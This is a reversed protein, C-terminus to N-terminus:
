IEGEVFDEEAIENADSMELSVEPQPPETNAIIYEATGSITKLNFVEKLPLKVSLKRKVKSVLMVALLSHGGLSFFDDHVGITNADIQLIGAWIAVLIEELENRPAVYLQGSALSINMRELSQRDVKGNALLPIEELSVFTVPVMYDPLTQLLHTKLEDNTPTQEVDDRTYFAILQKNVMGDANEQSQAVVVSFRIATHENLASEIEATEIRFGRIKVQTDMRGLYEINGNDLWRALDGTKYMRSGPIFPNAVFKAQTMEPRNLYGRAVGDGAIHLEGPVGVPTPHNHQDLIYVQTNHLPQGLVISTVNDTNEATLPESAIKSITTETPGYNNFVQCNPNLGNVLDVTPKTLAEGAFILVKQVQIIKTDSVKFMDFHSPTIKMCDVPHKDLYDLLETPNNVYDNGLLTLTKSFLLPVYLSINGLDSSFSSVAAFRDCRNLGMREVVSYCYDVVMRHEIMVGKPQGTTGSTYIVYALNNSQVQQNLTRKQANVEELLQNPLSGKEDLVIVQTGPQVVAEIKDKFQAQTVIISAQSDKAIYSLRDEPYEPDLPVYAGGAELIGMLGVMMGLSREVCLGVLNDPQVGQSQLYLALRHSQQGLQKFTLQHANDETAEVLAVKDPNCAVQQVFLQHICHEKPYDLQNTTNTATLRQQEADTVYNLETLKSEPAAVIARCLETFHQVMRQITEQKFLATKYVIMGDMGQQTETFHVILDFRSFNLELPFDQIDKDSLDMAVNHLVFMVQFLPSIGVTRDPQVLDVIKEFPTDQHEYAELCTNKVQALLANFSDDGDLLDRYVLTNAFMGILGETEEHQRNAISGGFCIDEQGTYRYLLTKFAAQLTMYLTAGQTETLHNLAETLAEDIHFVETFGEFNPEKPRPFDTALNLREPAGSLKKGWYDLQTQLLGSDEMFNRQWLSYDLYQVPLAPLEPENGQQFAAMIHRFEKIIVSMSWGDSIIHHMNLVLVHEVASLQILQGRILPGISLDFPTSAEQQCREQATALREERDGIHSLDVRGLEFDYSEQIVQQVKGDVGPYLSRLNEHRAIIINLAQEVQHADLPHGVDSKLTVAGPINYGASDPDLQDIFWLREQVFSLPLNGDGQAALENRDVPVIQPLSRKETARVIGALAAVTEQEFLTRLPLEIAFQSRIKAIVQTALLSHGGLEFFRDNVGITAADLGLVEAWINVLTAESENRPALYSQASELTLDMCELTRRDLKGNPTLPITALSVWAAPVMYGPLDQRLSAKLTEADLEIVNDETSAKALYFAVLYKSGEEGRAVVVCERIGPHHNLRTEIEGPEVRYGRLKVQQDARAIYHLTGGNGEVNPIWRVLDGTQYLRAGSLDSFPNAVFRQATLEPQNLYGRAVGEGGIYLEGAVGAPVPMLDGDLVYFQTNAIPCGLSVEGNIKCVSSWVSTETPGYMNWLELKDCAQLSDKLDNRLAEGGCLAKFHKQPQWGHNMLMKWTAPTAQMTTIGHENILKALDEPSGVNESSAIVVQAGTILPLYCELVHIDFSLSTVALLKDAGTLGPQQQMSTLFNVVNRHELMVGKPKGTSGSTYILYALNNATLGLEQQSLNATEQQSLEVGFAEEDICIVKDVSATQKQALEASFLGGSFLDATFQETLHKQTIIWRVGSDAVMHVLRAQPYTPDMPLYAGGAKMVGLVGILMELSRDVCLGVVSDPKVGQTVLYRALQNAKENLQRYTLSEGDFVLATDDPTEAAQAEFLEHICTGRPSDCDTRNWNQLSPHENSSLHATIDSLTKFRSEQLANLVEAFYDLLHKITTDSYQEARYALEFRLTRGQGASEPLVTLTLPYNTQEDNQVDVVRLESSAIIKEIEEDVPYNEFVVLTEFLNRDRTFQGASCVNQIETLPLFGKEAREISAQHLHKLWCGIDQHRDVEALVPLSNIFLGVMQEVGTIEAPRGSTTEGFIVHKDGSYRHLLYAWAAQVLTNLTVEYHKAVTRLEVFQNATLTHIQKRAGRANRDPQTALDIKTASVVDQLQRKWWDRASDLDQQALWSLYDGYPKVDPLATALQLSGDEGAAAIAYLVMVEKFVLPLSWGDTLAHHNSWILCHQTDSLSILSIRMLPAQEVNFGTAKDQEILAQLRTQQQADDLGSLDIQALPLDAESLVLQHTFDQTFVTRYVDHRGVITKLAQQLADINLKGTLSVSLQAVYASAELSSHFLMGHQMGTTPYAKVVNPYAKRWKSIQSQLALSPDQQQLLNADPIRTQGTEQPKALPALKEITQNEFLQRTTLGLGVQTARNVAQIALISDGGLAFFNDTVGVQEVKLLAQWIACLQNEAESRPAVYEQKILQESVDIALLAKRDVKGNSTLPLDELMVFASPLMYDPLSQKLHERLSEIIQESSQSTAVETRTFFAVLKKPTDRDIVAVDNLTVHQSLVSEIESVEVRFGRIKVQQDIRGLFELDGSSDQSSTGPIWRVLDGTRYLRPSGCASSEDYFPNAIFKEATLEPQNIYGRGLGIGGIFLEGAVGVPCPTLHRDLVYYQVNPIAQGISMVQDDVRCHKFSSSISAETPGYVNFFQTSAAWKDVLEQSYKEGGAEVTKISPMKHPDLLALVSPPVHLHTVNSTNVVATIIDLDLLDDNSILRLTGGCTLAGIWDEAGADFAFSYYQLICTNQDHGFRRQMDQALNVIGRHEILVGKPKGTSGSTYIAYALHESTLPTGHPYQNKDINEQFYEGLLAERIAEDLLLIQQDDLPLDALLENETLLIEIGSDELIYEIRDQPYSPDVPVYAGGAKLVGLQAIMMEVSREVCVGVLSDPQVGQEVLYHAVQNAAINLESYTLKEEVGNLGTSLEVAIADPNRAVQQEFLEHICTNQSRELGQEDLEEPATHLLRQAEDPTLVPLQGVSLEPMAIIHQLLVEFHKSLREITATDFLATAYEWLFLMGEEASDEMEFIDLSLDLKSVSQEQDIPCISLGPLAFQGLENNQLALKVQILPSYSLSRELQLEDVLKEFPLQQHEYAGLLYSKSRQLLTEFTPNDSLDTRLVLTNVFFGVLPALEAHDRNAVPTGVVIDDENSYRALLVAYAANLVMFLTVDYKNALAHLGQQIEKSITQRHTLGEFNQIAPRPYDLPLNHVEPIGELQEKWFQYNKELVPAKLWNNQWWAYDAYQIPLEPLPNPQNEVFSQYLATFEKIIIGESWGDVAIHHMTVLLVHADEGFQLLKVRLMLDKSLDFVKDTEERRHQLTVQHQEAETLGLLSVIPLAVQFEDFISQTVDGSATTQFTTRLVHHREVIRQFAFNLARVNLKGILQFGRSLNYQTSGQEIQDLLWLRQQDYSVAVAEDTARPVIKPVQSETAFEIAQSLKRITQETFLTRIPIDVKWQQRIQAVLRAALLSHGGLQFFNSTVSINELNLLAQWMECLQAEVPTQPGVIEVADNFEPKPLANRNIKGNPTLPIQELCVIASPIMYAPLLGELHAIVRNPLNEKAASAAMNAHDAVTVYAALQTTDGESWVHAVAEVVDAQQKLATEIEELEIRHGRVKVQLDARRVYELQGGPLWRVLDGTKYMRANAQDLFPNDLFREATLEPQHLYGRAVGDGGIYLEGVVGVPVPRLHQDLVYCQTNAIPEGLSIADKIRATASWVATETPGFMNWLELNEREILADKLDVSLAEGGCLAKLKCAPRWGTNVLMKWTAPTAQLATVGHTTLLSSLADPSVVDESSAIIVHGGTVLPLYLELVHIDFSLSTVALLTDSQDFGPTQEMSTLFNTVNRHELMVGKPKGTSGSTYILYALHHSTLGLREPSLNSSECQALEEKCQQNDLCIAQRLALEQHIAESTIVWGVGSDTMMHDLRAKPYAPDMPLYAGGSKMVALTSILMELSRKVCVGVVSDPKVGQEVLYHALQNARQNLQEYSLSTEEFTVAIANPTASVQEEFWQHLCKEQPYRAQTANWDHLLQTTEQRTLLSLQSIKTEPALVISELLTEFQAVMREITPKLFLDTAYQWEMELGRENEQVILMLDYQTLSGSSKLSTAEVSPLNLPEITQNQLNLMVQFLPSYSLNREPQLADVLTAFPTQQHEQAAYARERSQALLETFSPDGSLDSRFVLNNIFLGVLPALESQERNAVPAGIVIDSEGSYRSLLTAFAANMVMFFTADNERALQHLSEQLERSLHCHVSAGHFSQVAPRPKDLPLGHVSPLQDLHQKWYGLHNQLVDDNLQGRQWHAYDRYQITLPALSPEVGQILAAYLVNLEQTLVGLSWGDAAIHHATLLLVHSQASLKLLTVRLMLDEALDFLRSAEEQTLQAVRREQEAKNLETLDLVPLECQVSGQVTQFITGNDEYFTTRLSEHRDIITSFAEQLFGVNLQGFLKVSFSLNYQAQDSEIQNVLWIREQAYSAQSDDDGFRPLIPSLESTTASEVVKALKRITNNTFFDRVSVDVQWQKQIKSILTAALLSHGGLNLFNHDVSIDDLGFVDQWLTCLESEIPSLPAIPSTQINTQEPKDADTPKVEGNLSSYLAGLDKSLYRTKSLSRQIKGSSTRNIRGAKLFVVDDLVVDFYEFIATKITEAALRFDFGKLESRSVELMLVAHGDFEFAAAGNQNLGPYVNYALKEFDQPYYNRAKIIMVDKIRGSIHLEGDHIFGLDGTRLYSADDDSLRAGFSAKTKEEDNWYGQAVSPGAFWIEGVEGDPLESLSQPSVIKLHHEPQVHGHAILIQHKAEDQLLHARGKQLDESLFANATYPTLYNGGCIFVTAEAMGYAPFIASEKFGVRSFRECFRMLTNADLPEAANFAIRWSSLDLHTMQHPKIRELCHDFAFNPAGGITAKYESIASLWAMPNKIFGMPSMLVSHAGLFIPLLLTNVLGLDHFLPLWNCFVDQESCHTAQQLTKLNAIINGHTIVVGKPTGTSGSTYQLFAIQEAKPLENLNETKEGIFPEVGLVSEVGLVPLPSLDGELQSKLSGNTLVLSAQCDDIVTLVRGTHKKSQPPYLPVAVVGAYLCGLFSQIYELGPPFLLVVRSNGACRNKIHHAISQARQHLESFRIQSLEGNDEIFTFAEDNYKSQAHDTLFDYITEM